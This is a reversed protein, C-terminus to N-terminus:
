GLNSTMSAIRRHSMMWRPGFTKISSILIMCTKKEDNSKMEIWKQKTVTIFSVNDYMKRGIRSNKNNEAKKAQIKVTPGNHLWHLRFLSGIGRGNPAAKEAFCSQTLFRAFYFSFFSLSFFVLHFFFDLANLLSSFLCLLIRQFPSYCSCFSPFYRVNQATAVTKPHM